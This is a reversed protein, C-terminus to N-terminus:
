SEDPLPVVRTNYPRGKRDGQFHSTCPVPPFPRGKRDGQNHGQCERIYGTIRQFLVNNRTPPITILASKACRCTCVSYERSSPKLRMLFSTCCALANPICCRAM